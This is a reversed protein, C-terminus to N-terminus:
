SQDAPLLYCVDTTYRTFGLSTYLRVARENDEDVYLLVAPLGLERLYRLGVVTLARGLGAGGAGPAVGVVYVEGIPGPQDCSAAEGGSAGDGSRAPMPDQPHVKTWHFGVLAGDREALFFGAPDFWPEEQRRHLDEITWRGQEPHHAFAAANMELWTQEDRGVEFTRVKVGAPLGPEPLDAAGSGTLSRRLQLLVRSRSFGTRAALTAAAPSAGHAWISLPGSEGADRTRVLAHVLATGIGRRRHEPHVVLEAQRASATGGLHAYGVVRSEGPEPGRAILHMGDGLRLGPRLTLRVDESIGGAGDVQQAASLLDLVDDANDADLTHLWTLSTVSVVTSRIAPM